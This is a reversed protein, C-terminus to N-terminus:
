PMAFSPYGGSIIGSYRLIVVMNPYDLVESVHSLRENVLIPLNVRVTGDTDAKGITFGLGNATPHRYVFVYTGAGLHVKYPPSQVNRTHSQIFVPLGYRAALARGTLQGLIEAAPDFQQVDFPLAVGGVKLISTQTHADQTFQVPLHKVTALIGFLSSSRLYVGDQRVQANPDSPLNIGQAAFQARHINDPGDPIEFTHDSLTVRLVKNHVDPYRPDRQDAQQVRAGQQELLNQVETMSVWGQNTHLCAVGGIQESHCLPTNGLLKEQLRETMRASTLVGYILTVLIVPLLATQVRPWTYVAMFQRRSEAPPGFLQLATKVAEGRDLGHLQHDRVLHELDGRLEAQVRAQEPAPLGRTAQALYQEIPDKM